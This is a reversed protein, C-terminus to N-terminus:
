RLSRRALLLPHEHRRGDPHDRVLLAAAIGPWTRLRLRPRTEPPWLDRLGRLARPLAAEAALRAHAPGAGTEVDLGDPATRAWAAFARPAHPRLSLVSHRRALRLAGPRPRVEVVHIGAADEVTLLAHGQGLVATLHHVLHRPPPPLADEFAALLAQRAESRFAPDWRLERVAKPLARRGGADPLHIRWPQGDDFGQAPRMELTLGARLGLGAAFAELADWPLAIRAADIM